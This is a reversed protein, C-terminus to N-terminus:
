CRNDVIIRSPRRRLGIMRRRYARQNTVAYSIAYSPKRTVVHARRESYLLFLKMCQLIIHKSQSNEDIIENKYKIIEKDIISSSVKPKRGM